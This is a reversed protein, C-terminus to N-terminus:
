EGNSQSDVLESLTVVRYGRRFLEPLIMDLAVATREGRTGFDHLVIISGPRVKWLVYRTIFWSSGLQPDFPYVSGLACEYDHRQLISLMNKNYWGSGPRFWRIESFESLVEHAELLQKEFDSINLTISPQDTLLHNALEHNEEVMRQILEENDSIRNVILFFTAHAGYRKLRNLIDPTTDPDPGDDITLAVIPEQTDIEYLVEPSHKKLTKIFWEPELLILVSMILFLAAAVLGITLSARLSM